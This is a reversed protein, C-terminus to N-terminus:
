RLVLPQAMWDRLAMAVAEPAELAPFHGAEEIVQLQAGPILEAMFSHRKLPVIPDQGGCLVLTPVAIKRLTTVQDRRRQLARMQRVFVEPGLVAAMDAVLELIEHRPADVGLAEPPIEERMVEALRGARVRVILPDRAAAEQPTDALPSAHMLCLRAVRDPARRQVEMAVVAGIGHGVLAARRPLVDLLGSAIEEIREGETMPGVMVATDRSLDALQPGFARADSMMGPLFVLPERM